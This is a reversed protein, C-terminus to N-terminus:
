PARPRPQALHKGAGGGGNRGLRAMEHKTISRRFVEQVHELGVIARHALRKGREIRRPLLREAAVQQRQHGAHVPGAVAAQHQRAFIELDHDGLASARQSALRAPALAGAAMAEGPSEVRSRRRIRAWSASPSATTSWANTPWPTPLSAAPYFGPACVSTARAPCAPIADGSALRATATLRRPWARRRCTPFIAPSPPLWRRRM